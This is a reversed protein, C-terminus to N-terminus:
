GIARIGVADREREPPIVRRTSTVQRGRVGTIRTISTTLCTASARLGLERPNCRRYSEPYDRRSEIALAAEDALFRDVAERTRVM